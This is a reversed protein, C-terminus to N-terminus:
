QISLNRRIIENANVRSNDDEVQAYRNAAQRLPPFRLV